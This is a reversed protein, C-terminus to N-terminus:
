GRVRLGRLGETWTGKFPQDKFNMQVPKAGFSSAHHEFWARGLNDLFESIVKENSNRYSAMWFNLGKGDETVARPNVSFYVIRDLHSYIQGGGPKTARLVRSIFNLADEPPLSHAADDVIFAIGCADPLNLFSKTAKIQKNADELKRKWPVMHLNM